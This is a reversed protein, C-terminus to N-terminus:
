RDTNAGTASAPPPPAGPPNGQNAPFGGPGRGTGSPDDRASRGQNAPTSSPLPANIMMQGRGPAGPRAPAPDQAPATLNNGDRFFTQSPATSQAIMPLPVTYQSRLGDREVTIGDPRVEVLKTEAAVDQGILFARAPKGDVSIVASSDKGAAFVGSVQINMSGSVQGSNVDGMMRAALRVDPDRTAVQAVPVPPASPPASVLRMVWYAIIASAIAAGLLHLLIPTPRPNM